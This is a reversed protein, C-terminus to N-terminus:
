FLNNIDSFSALSYSVAGVTVDERMKKGRTELTQEDFTPSVNYVGNYLPVDPKAPPIDITGTVYGDIARIGM